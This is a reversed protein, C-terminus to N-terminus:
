AQKATNRGRDRIKQRQGHGLIVNALSEVARNFEDPDNLNLDDREASLLVLLDHPIGLAKSLRQLAGLSPTRMGKEILSIHSPDIKALKALQKQQLGAIARAIRLGKGYNM